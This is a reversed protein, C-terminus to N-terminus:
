LGSVVFRAYGWKYFSGKATFVSVFLKGAPSGKFVNKARLSVLFVWRLLSDYTIFCLWVLWAWNSPLRQLPSSPPTQWRPHWWRTRQTQSPVAWAWVLSGATTPWWIGKPNAAESHPQLWCSLRFISYFSFHSLLKYFVSTVNTTSKVDDWLRVKQEPM